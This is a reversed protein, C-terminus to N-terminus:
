QPFWQYWVQTAVPREVNTVTVRVFANECIFDAIFRRPDAREERTGAPPQIFNTYYSLDRLTSLDYERDFHTNELEFAAFISAPNVREPFRQTATISALAGLVSSIEVLEIRSESDSRADIGFVHSICAPGCLSREFFIHYEIEEQIFSPDDICYNYHECFYSYIKNWISRTFRFEFEFDSVIGRGAGAQEAERQLHLLRSLLHVPFLENSYYIKVLNPNRLVTIATGALFSSGRLADETRLVGNAQMFNLYNRKLRTGSASFYMRDISRSLNEHITQSGQTRHTSGFMLTENDYEIHYDGISTFPVGSATISCRQEESTPPRRTVRAMNIPPPPTTQGVSMQGYDETPRGGDSSSALANTLEEDTVILFAANVWGSTLLDAHHVHCWINRHPRNAADLTLTSLDIRENGAALCSYVHIQVGDFNLQGLVSERHSPGSRVNLHDDNAVGTIRGCCIGEEPVQLPSGISLSLIAITSLLVM